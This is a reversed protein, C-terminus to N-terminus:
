APHDRSAEGGSGVLDMKWGARYGYGMRLVRFFQIKPSRGEQKWRPEDINPTNLVGSEEASPGFKATVAEM